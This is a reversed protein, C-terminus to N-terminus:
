SRGGLLAPLAQLVARVVMSLGVLVLLLPWATQWELGFSHTVILLMWVGVSLLVLGGGRIRTAARGPSACCAAFIM